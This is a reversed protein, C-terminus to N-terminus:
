HFNTCFLGGQEPAGVLSGWGSVFLLLGKKHDVDSTVGMTVGSSKVGLGHGAYLM